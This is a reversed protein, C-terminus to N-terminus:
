SIPRAERYHRRTWRVSAVILIIRPHFAAAHATRAAIETSVAHLATSGALVLEVVSAIPSPRRSFRAFTPSAIEGVGISVLWM